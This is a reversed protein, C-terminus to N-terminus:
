RKRGVFRKLLNVNGTMRTMCGPCASDEPLKKLAKQHQDCFLSLVRRSDDYGELRSVAGPETALEAFEADTILEAMHLEHRAQRVLDFLRQNEIM